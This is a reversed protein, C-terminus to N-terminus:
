HGMGRIYRRKSRGKGTNLAGYTPTLSHCNPCLLRLNCETNNTYDGDIHDIQVPVKGTTPNVESWNCVSCKNGCKEILYIRIHESVKEGGQMGTEEGNLWRQIYLSHQHQAQCKNSCYKIQKKSLFTQCEACNMKEVELSSGLIRFGIPLNAMICM